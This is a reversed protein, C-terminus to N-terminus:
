YPRTPESIHILSLSLITPNTQKILRIFYKLLEDETSFVEIQTNDKSELTLKGEVDLAGVYYMDDQQDYITFSLVRNIPNQWDPFGELVETEIDFFLVRHNISPEDSQHYMDVLTRMEPHIDAEFLKPTDEKKWFTVKKLKDGYLSRMNGSRDKQYAYKKFPFM